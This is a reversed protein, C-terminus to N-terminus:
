SFSAFKCENKEISSNIHRTTFIQLFITWNMKQWPLAEAFLDLNRISHGGWRWAGWGERDL